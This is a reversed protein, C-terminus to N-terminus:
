LSLHVSRNCDYTSVVVNWMMYLKMMDYSFSLYIGVIDKIKVCYM